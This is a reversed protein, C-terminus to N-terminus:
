KNIGSSKKSDLKNLYLVAVIMLVLTFLPEMLASVPYGSNAKAIFASILCIGFSVYVWERVRLPTQPILLVIAGIVKAITLEIRFYEPFGLRHIFIEKHTGSYSASFIMFSSIGATLVWYIVTHKKM